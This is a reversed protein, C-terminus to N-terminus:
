AMRQAGRKKCEFEVKAALKSEDPYTRSHLM